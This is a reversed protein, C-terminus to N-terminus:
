FDWIEDFAIEAFYENRELIVEEDWKNDHDKIRKVLRKTIELDSNEYVALKGVEEGNDNIQLLKNNKAMGNIRRSLLTLNGVNHVYEETEEETLDWKTPNQPLIHEISLQDINHVLEEDSGMLFYDIMQLTYSILFNEGRDNYKLSKFNVKFTEEDPKLDKLEQIFSSIASANAQQRKKSSKSSDSSNEVIVAYKSFLKELSEQVQLQDLHDLTLVTIEIIM